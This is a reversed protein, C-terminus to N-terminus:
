IIYGLEKSIELCTNALLEGDRKITQEDLRDKPGVLWITGCPIGTHDIIVSGICMIGTMEEERDLAYGTQRVDELEKLYAKQTTITRENYRTFCMKDLYHNLMSEPMAAMMAKGPASCHLDILKGPSLVFCFPHSGLAQEIFMVKENSMTGFCVTEKVIDRINRLHPLVIEHLNREHLSKFGLSLMKHSIFYRKSSEIYIVYKLRILTHLIRYATTQSLEVRNKIEQLTLGEQAEVLLELVSLGKELNPVKYNDETQSTKIEM